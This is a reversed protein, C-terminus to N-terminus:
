HEEEVKVVMYGIKETSKKILILASYGKSHILRSHRKAESTLDENTFNVILGKNIIFDVKQRLVQKDKLFGTIFRDKEVYLGSRKCGMYIGEKLIAISYSGKRQMTDAVSKRVLTAVEDIAGPTLESPTPM